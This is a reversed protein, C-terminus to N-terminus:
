FNTQLLPLQDGERLFREFMLPIVRQGEVTVIQSDSILNLKFGQNHIWKRIAPKTYMRYDTGIRAWLYIPLQTARAVEFMQSLMAKATTATRKETDIAWNALYLREKGTEAHKDKVLLMYGIPNGNREAIKSFNQSPEGNKEFFAYVKRTRDVRYYEFRNSIGLGQLQFPDLFNIGRGYRIEARVSSAAVETEWSKIRSDISAILSADHLNAPRFTISSM